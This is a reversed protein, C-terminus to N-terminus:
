KVLLDYVIEMVDSSMGNRSSLSYDFCFKRNLLCTENEDKTEEIEEIEAQVVRMKALNIISQLDPQCIFLKSNSALEYLEVLEPSLCSSLHPRLKARISDKSTLYSQIIKALIKPEMFM